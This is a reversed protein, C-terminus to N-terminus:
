IYKGAHLAISTIRYGAPSIGHWWHDWRFTLVTLPRYSNHTWRPVELHLDLASVLWHPLTFNMPYGALTMMIMIGLRYVLSPGVQLCHALELKQWHQDHHYHHKSTFLVQYL